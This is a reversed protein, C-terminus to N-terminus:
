LNISFDYRRSRYAMLYGIGGCIVGISLVVVFLTMISINEKGIGGEIFIFLVGSGSLGAFIMLITAVPGGINMGLLHIWALINSVRSFKRKLNIELHNYFVATVAIAVILILYLIIGIFFWKAPGEFSLSLYQIIDVDTISLQFGVTILAMGTMIGGQIIAAIIFRNGWKTKLTNNNNNNDM